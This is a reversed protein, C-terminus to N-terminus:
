EAYSVRKEMHPHLSKGNLNKVYQILEDRIFINTTQRPLPVLFSCKDGGTALYDSTAVYYVKDDEVMNTGVRIDVAKKDTAIVYSIGSVPWGRLAAMHDCFQKLVSGKMEVICLMNDFPMLEYMHQVTISGPQIYSIRLGGSNAIAINTNPNIMKAKALMADAVFNGLTGEPQARYLVTDTIGIVVKLEAGMKQKYPSVLQLLQSDPSINAVKYQKSEQQVIARPKHCASSLLVPLILLCLRSKSLM